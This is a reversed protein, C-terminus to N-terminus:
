QHAYSGNLWNGVSPCKPQRVDKAMVCHANLPLTVKNQWWLYSIASITFGRINWKEKWTDWGGHPYACDHSKNQGLSQSCLCHTHSGALPFGVHSGRREKGEGHHSFLCFTGSPSVGTLRPGQASDGASGHHVQHYKAPAFLLSPQMWDRPM